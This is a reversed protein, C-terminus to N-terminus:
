GDLGVQGNSSTWEPRPAIGLYYVKNSVQKEVRQKMDEGFSRFSMVFKDTMGREEKCWRVFAAYIDKAQTKLGDGTTCCLSVFEGVLDQEEAYERTWQRVIEPPTLDRERIFRRACRVVWSLIAPGAEAMRRKLVDSPLGLYIHKSEDVEDQNLTFVAEFPIVRLRKEFAKDASRLQPIFNTHLFLKCLARFEIPDSYLGRARIIDDGTVAKLMEVSFKAGRKPESTIAMRLGDLVLLDPDPGAAKQGDELLVSVKFTGAYQGLAEAIANFTQSKGNNATPGYACYLEKHSMLGTAAYGIVREFYDILDARGCFVKRIHDQWFADYVHLGGYRYPSQKRLYLDPRARQLEGTELDIVGNSCAMLTPHADWHEGSVGLSGAGSASVELVQKTRSLSRISKARGRLAEVKTSNRKRAAKEVEMIARQVEDQDSNGEWRKQTAAIAQAVDGEVNSHQEAAAADYIEAVDMCASVAQGVADDVWRIEDYLMWRKRKHDYVMRQAMLLRLLEADGLQNRNLLQHMEHLPPREFTQPRPSEAAWLMVPDPPAIRDHDLQRQRDAALAERWATMREADIEERIYGALTELDPSGDPMTPMPRPACTAPALPPEDPMIPPADDLAVHAADPSPPVDACTPADDSAGGMAELEAWSPGDDPGLEPPLDGAHDLEPPLGGAPAVVATPNHAAPRTRRKAPTAAGTTKAKPKGATTAGSAKPTATAKGKPNGTTEPAPPQKPKGMTGGPVHRMVSRSTRTARCGLAYQSVHPM